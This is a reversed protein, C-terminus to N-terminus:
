GGGAPLEGYGGGFGRAIGDGIGRLGDGITHLPNGEPLNPGLVALGLLVVALIAAMM